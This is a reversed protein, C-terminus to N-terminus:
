GILTKPRSILRHSIALVADLTEPTVQGRRRELRHHSVTRVQHSLVYSRVSVGGEPPDIEVEFVTKREIKTIAAVVCLRHPLQNFQNSSIVLALRFGGQEHGIIPDFDTNWIEGQLVTIPRAM